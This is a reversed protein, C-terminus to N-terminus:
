EVEYVLSFTSDDYFNTFSYVRCPVDGWCQRVRNLVGKITKLDKFVLRSDTGLPEQGLPYNGRYVYFGM